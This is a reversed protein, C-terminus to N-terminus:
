FESQWLHEPVIFNDMLETLDKGPHAIQNELVLKHFHQLILIGYRTAM